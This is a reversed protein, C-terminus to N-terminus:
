MYEQTRTYNNRINKKPDKCDRTHTSISLTQHISLTQINLDSEVRIIQKAAATAENCQRHMSYEIDLTKHM